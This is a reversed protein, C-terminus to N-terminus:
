DAGNRLLLAAHGRSGEACLVIDIVSANVELLVAERFSFNRPASFLPAVDQLRKAGIFRSTVRLVARRERPSDVTKLQKVISRAPPYEGNVPLFFPWLIRQWRFEQWMGPSNLLRTAM